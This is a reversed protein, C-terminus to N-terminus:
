TIVEGTEEGAFFRGVEAKMVMLEGEMIEEVRLGGGDGVYKVEWVGNGEGKEGKGKVVELIQKLVETYRGLMEGNEKEFEKFDGGLTRVHIDELAFRATTKERMFRRYGANHHYAEVFTSTQSLYLDPMKTAIDFPHKSFKSRTTLEFLNFHHALSNPSPIITLSEIIDEAKFKEEENESDENDSPLIELDEISLEEKATNNDDNNPM